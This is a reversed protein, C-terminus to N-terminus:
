QFLRKRIAKSIKKLASAEIQRVREPGVGLIVGIQALTMPRKRNWLRVCHGPDLNPDHARM